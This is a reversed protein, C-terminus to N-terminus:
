ELLAVRVAFLLAALSWLLRGAGVPLLFRRPRLRHRALALDPAPDPADPVDLLDRLRHLRDGRRAHTPRLLRDERRPWVLLTQARDQVIESRVGIGLGMGEERTALGLPGRDDQDGGVPAEDPCEVRVD